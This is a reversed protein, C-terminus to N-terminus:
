SESISPKKLDPGSHLEPQYTPTGTLLGRLHSLRPGVQVGRPGPSVRFERLEPEFGGLRKKLCGVMKIVEGAYEAYRLLILNDALHSAGIETARLEGAIVEVENTLLVTVGRSLLYATLTHLDVVSQGYVSMAFDYGRIGDIVIIKRGRDVLARVHAFFEDPLYQRPSAYELHLAESAVQEDLSMGLSKNRMLISEPVEEFSIYAATEGNSIMQRLFASVLTSKGVGTPGSVITITGKELGGGLLTDLQAIGSRFQEM